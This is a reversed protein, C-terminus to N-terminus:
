NELLKDITMNGLSQIIGNQLRIFYERKLHFLGEAPCPPIDHGILNKLIETEQMVSMIDLLTIEKESKSLIYGGDVGRESTLIGAQKLKQLINRAVNPSAGIAAAIETSNQERNTAALYIVCRIAYNTTLNIKM